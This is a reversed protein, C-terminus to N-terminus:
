GHNCYGYENNIKYFKSKKQAFYSYLVCIADAVYVFILLNRETIYNMFPVNKPISTFSIKASSDSDKLANYNIRNLDSKMFLESYKEISNIKEKKLTNIYEVYLILTKGVVGLFILPIGISM